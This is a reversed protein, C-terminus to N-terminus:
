KGLQFQWNTVVTITASGPTTRTVLFRQGDPSVEYNRRQPGSPPARFLSQPAGFEATAGGLKVSVATLNGDAATYFLERGDRRWAPERGGLTSVPIPQSGEGPFAKVYIEGRGSQNSSYAIWRGDPSFAGDREVFRSDVFAYPKENSSLPVIWMHQDGQWLLFRGDPSWDYPYGSGSRRVMHAVLKEQDPGATVWPDWGGLRVSAFAIRKSDPAWVPLADADPHSTIREQYGRQLDYRAVELSQDAGDFIMLDAALHKGDPALRFNRFKGPPGIVEVPEGKRNLWTLRESSSAQYALIGNDSVSFLTDAGYGPVDIEGERTVPIAPGSLTLANPDFRQAMIRGGGRFLVFGQGDQAPQYLARTMGGMLRVPNAKDTSKDLSGVFVGGDKAAPVKSYLFRQGGPLFYPLAGQEILPVANGGTPSVSSLGGKTFGFGSLFLIVGRSSWASPTGIGRGVEFIAVPTGGALPVRTLKGAAAYGIESGDPSWFPGQAGETGPILRAELSNIPRIWLHRESDQFATIALNKGDPSLAFGVDVPNGGPIPISFRMSSSPAPPSVRFYLAIPIALALLATAAVWKWPFAISPLAPKPTQSSWELLARVEAATEWRGEPEEALCRQLIHTLSGPLGGLEASEGPKVVPRKGTGMEHLLLGFAYIDTRGGANRGQHQEPAMYAPTGMVVGAQTLTEGEIAALGFDLLKVGNRTLMVNGPKLDRHTIGKAHAAVLADAIQAGFKNVDALPLPGRKLRAELTEGEVLEMVIFDAGIDYLTCIHPHNLASLALSERRFRLNFAARCQKIAVPRNLRTDIGRFVEGMGGAGLRKEVRYPGLLSGEQLRPGADILAGQLADTAPAHALLSLVEKLLADDGACERDLFRERDEPRQEQAAHYLDEIRHWQSPTM